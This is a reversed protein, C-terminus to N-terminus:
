RKDKILGVINKFFRKIKPVVDDFRKAVLMLGNLLPVPKFDKGSSSSSNSSPNSLSNSNLGSGSNMDLGIDINLDSGFEFGDNQITPFDETFNHKINKNKNKNTSRGRSSRKPKKDIVENLDEKFRELDKELPNNFEDFPDDKDSVFLWM